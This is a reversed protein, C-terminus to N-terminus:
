KIWKQFAMTDVFVNKARTAILIFTM